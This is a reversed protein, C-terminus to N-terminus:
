INQKILPNETIKEDFNTKKNCKDLMLMASKYTTMRKEIDSYDDRQVVTVPTILFWNDIYQLKTWYQDVAYLHHNQPQKILKEVSNKFNNILTDYYNSKVLYGTTTQCWSVKVSYENTISYEKMNNGGLLVVDWEDVTKLFGNMQNIFLLPDLFMIDDECIMVHDLNKEKATLLCKLHSMACGLAGFKMKIANFRNFNKIGVLNLQKEVHFKRDKRHELNIYVVNKIDSINKLM